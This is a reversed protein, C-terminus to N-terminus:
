PCVPQSNSNGVDGAPGTVPPKAQIVPRTLRHWVTAVEARLWIGLGRRVHRLVSADPSFGAPILRQGATNKYGHIGLRRRVRGIHALRRNYLTMVWAVFGGIPGNYFPRALEGHGMRHILQVPGAFYFGIDLLLAAHMLEADGVYEYKDKYLSRFWRLFAVPVGMSYDKLCERTCEGRLDASVLRTVATVTNGVFDIGHSYLPDMFGVADGVMAWGPGAVETSRYAVGTYTRADQEVPRAGRLLWEAVPHGAMAALLREPISGVSPPTYIRRDWTIGVSVEGGKLPIIWAWWGDGTIHNTANYRTTWIRDKVCPFARAFEDSDMDGVSQFRCWMSSTPHAELPVLTGRKRALVAAKGSADIVWSATVAVDPQGARRVTLSHPGPGDVNVATVTAPRWLMCGAEVAESLVHADLRSRDLQWAPLRVQLKPGIEVCKKLETNGQGNFWFRLGNKAIQERGLWGGLNLVRSLFYGAVESTSEGVKFDFAEGREIILVRVSPHERRLLLGASAGALAGGIIVVDYEQTEVPIGQVRGMRKAVEQNM